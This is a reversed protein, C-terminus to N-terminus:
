SGILCRVPFGFYKNYSSSPNLNTSFLLLRYAYSGSGASRSWYYGYTGRSLASSGNFYGSYLFNNPFARFRNSLATSSQNSGSGGLAISLKGFEKATGNSSPLHWGSPCISTNLAESASSSTYYGTNAMAAAWTYYNGYSYVNAGYYTGSTSPSSANAYNQTFTTNDIMSNTNQHNFRPMRYAPYNSTGIDMLTGATSDFVDGSGDSKYISNATTNTTFNATEATALGVFTGYTGATGGYGQSLSENTVSSDNTNNGVTGEAELRLNETMWCNGDALKAITYIENDRKDTLAIVSGATIEGTTSNFTAATLASCETTGFDQLWVPEDNADTEAAVWVAYMTIINTGDNPYAPAEITAMPGYITDSGGITASSSTSWGAFGYGSRKFNSPLLVVADGEGVNTQAVSKVGTTANTTGMGNTNSAGNGDYQITYIPVWHAYLTIGDGATAGSPVTYTSSVKYETGSGDAATNWGKIKWGTLSWKNYAALTGTETGASPNSTLTITQPSTYASVDSTCSTNASAYTYCNNVYTITYVPNWQAYLTIEAGDYLSLTSAITSFTAGAAVATGSGDAATNWNKFVWGTRTFGNSSATAVNIEVDEQSATTGTVPYSESGNGDYTITATGQSAVCRLNKEYYRNGGYTTGTSASTTMTSANVRAGYATSSDNVTATWFHSYSTQYFTTGTTFGGNILFASPDATTPNSASYASKSSLTTWQANSPLDWGKPCISSTIVQGSTSYATTSAVAAAWSYYVGNDTTSSTNTLRLRAAAVTTSATATGAPLTFTTGDALDTDDSTLTITGDENPGDTGSRGLNLNKTMWCNGDALKSVTYEEPTETNEDDTIVKGRSDTLTAAPANASTTIESNYCAAPSMDQMENHDIVKETGSATSTTLDALTPQKWIAYLHVTANSGITTTGSNGNGDDYTITDNLAFEIDEGAKYWDGSGDSKTNWGWFTWLKDATGVTNNSSDTHQGITPSSFELSTATKFTANEGVALVETETADTMTADVSGYNTNYEINYNACSADMTVTYIITGNNAMTYSGPAKTNEISVGYYVTRTDTWTSGSGTESWNNWLTTATTSPTLFVGSTASASGSYGWANTSNALTSSGDVASISSSASSDGGLYLTPAGSTAISFTYGTTCNSSITVEDETVAAGKVPSVDLTVSDNTTVTMSYEAYTPETLILIPLSLIIPLLTLSAAIASTISGNASSRRWSNLKIRGSTNKCKKM